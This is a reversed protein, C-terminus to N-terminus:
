YRKTPFNLLHILFLLPLSSLHPAGCIQALSFLPVFEGATPKLIRQVCQSLQRGGQPKEQYESTSDVHSM